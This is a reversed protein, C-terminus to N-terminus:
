HWDLITESIITFKRHIENAEKKSLANELKKAYVKMKETAKTVIEIGTKTIKIKLKRQNKQNISKTVFKKERLKSVLRSTNTTAIVMKNQIEELSLSSEECNDFHLTILINLQEHSLNFEKLMMDQHSSYQKAIKLIYHIVTLQETRFDKM